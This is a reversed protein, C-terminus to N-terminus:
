ILSATASQSSKAQISSSTIFLLLLPPLLLSLFVDVNASEFFLLPLSIAIAGNDGLEWVDVDDDDDDDDDDVLTM